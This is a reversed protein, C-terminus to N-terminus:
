KPVSKSPQNSKLAVTLSHLTSDVVFEGEIGLNSILTLCSIRHTKVNLKLRM